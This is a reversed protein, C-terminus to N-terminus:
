ILGYQRLMDEKLLVRDGPKKWMLFKKGFVAAFISLVLVVYNQVVELFYSGVKPILLILFILAFYPFSFLLFITTAILAIFMLPGVVYNFFGQVIVRKSGKIRRRFLLYVYRWLVRVFQNARRLKMGVKEKWLAPFATYFRAEPVFIARSNKEALAVITGCDDSGTNYPDFSELVERKYASFGGEFFLTSGIKSEGLKMLNMSDLYAEETKTVWSQSPNLLIKPGSVVGVQPDALFPLTKRLVDTPWFCDADSVIIVDGNCHKLALNLAASKGKRENEVLVRLNIEPHWRAFDNIIAVTDDDSNSDVVIIQILNWPYDIKRLNEFKFSIIDSENYTPVLISIKPMYDRDIRLRWPKMAAWRMLIFNLSLVGFSFFCLVFWLILVEVMLVVM